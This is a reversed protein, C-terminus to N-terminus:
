TSYNLKLNFNLNFNASFMDSFLAQWSFIIWNEQSINGKLCISWQSIRNDTIPRILFLRITQFLEPLMVLYLCLFVSMSWNCSAGMAWQLGQSLYICILLVNGDTTETIAKNKVQKKLWALHLDLPCPCTLIYTAMNLYPIPRWTLLRM